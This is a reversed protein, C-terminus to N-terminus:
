DDDREGWIDVELDGIEDHCCCECESDDFWPRGEGLDDTLRYHRAEYCERASWRICACSKQIRDAGEAFREFPTKALNADTM